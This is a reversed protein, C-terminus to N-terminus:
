ITFSQLLSTNLKEFISFYMPMIPSHRDQYQDFNLLTELFNESFSLIITRKLAYDGIAGGTTNENFYFGLLLSIYLVLFLIILYNIKKLKNFNTM